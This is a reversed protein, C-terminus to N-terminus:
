PYNVESIVSIPTFQNFLSPLQITFARLLGM